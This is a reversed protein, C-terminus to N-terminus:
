KSRVILRKALIAFFAVTHLHGIFAEEACFLRAASSNPVFDGFGVSTFTITSFYIADKTQSYYHAPTGDSLNPKFANFLDWGMAFMLILIASTITFAIIAMLETQSAKDESKPGELFYILVYLFLAYFAAITVGYLSLAWPQKPLSLFAVSVFFAIGPVRFEWFASKTSRWMDVWKILRNM